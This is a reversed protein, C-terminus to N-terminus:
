FLEGEVITSRKTATGTPQGVGASDSPPPPPSQCSEFRFTTVGALIIDGDTLRAEVVPRDNLTTGNRSGLDRIQWQGGRRHLEFYRRSMMLDAVRVGAADGRGVLFRQDPHLIVPGDTRDPKVITLLATPM